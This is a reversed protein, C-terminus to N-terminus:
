CRLCRPAAVSSVIHDYDDCDAMAGCVVLPLIEALPHAIRRVDRPDDIAAFHELLVGLRSKEPSQRHSPLMLASRM